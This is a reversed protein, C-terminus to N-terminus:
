WFSFNFFFIRCNHIMSFELKGPSGAEKRSVPGNSVDESPDM